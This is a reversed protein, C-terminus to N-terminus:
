KKTIFNVLKNKIYINKTIGLDKLLGKPDSSARAGAEAVFKKSRGGSGFAGKTSIVGKTSKAGAPQSSGDENGTTDQSDEKLLNFISKRIAEKLRKEM